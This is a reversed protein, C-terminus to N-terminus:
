PPTGGWIIMRTGATETWVATHGVRPSPVGGTAAISWTWTNSTADYVNGLNTPDGSENLGGWVLFYNYGPVHIATHNRIAGVPYSNISNDWLGTALNYVAATNTTTSGSDLGGVRLVHTGTSVLSHFTLPSAMLALPTTNWTDDAPDYAGGDDLPIGGDEGGFVIMKSGTWIATTTRPTPQGSTSIPEWRSGAGANPDYAFGQSVFNSNEDRGGWLIMKTGTWVATHQSLVGPGNTTELLEWTNNSPNYAAGGSVNAGTVARRGGYVIMRTGTWVATHERRIEIPPASMTFWRDESPHYRLGMFETDDGPSPTRKTDFGGWVIMETGTWIATHGLVALDYQAEIPNWDQSLPDYGTQMVARSSLINSYANGSNGGVQFTFDGRGLMLYNLTIHGVSTTIPTPTGLTATASAIPTTILSPLEADIYYGFKKTEIFVSGSTESMINAPMGSIEIWDAIGPSVIV